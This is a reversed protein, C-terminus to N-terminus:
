GIMYAGVAACSQWCCYEVRPWRSSPKSSPKRLRRPCITGRRGQHDRHWPVQSGLPMAAERRTHVGGNADGELITVQRCPIIAPSEALRKEFGDDKPEGAALGLRWRYNHIVINVIWQRLRRCPDVDDFNVEASSRGSSSRLITCTNATDPGVASRPLIINTGGNFSPRQRCPRRASVEQGGILYGSVSVFHQADPWLAAVIDATGRGWDSGGVTAKEIKLADMLDIVDVAVGITPREPFNRGRSFADNQRLYPVIVRYGAEALPANISRHSYDHRLEARASSDSRAWGGAAEAYGVNWSVFIM